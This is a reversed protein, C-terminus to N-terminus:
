NNGLSRMIVILQAIKEDSLQRYDPYPTVVLRRAKNVAFYNDIWTLPPLNLRAAYTKGAILHLSDDENIHPEGFLLATQSHSQFLETDRFMQWTKPLGERGAQSYWDFLLKAYVNFVKRWHNSTNKAIHNLEGAALGCLENFQPYADFQPRNAIYFKIQSRTAGFGIESIHTGTLVNEPQM